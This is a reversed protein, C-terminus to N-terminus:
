SVRRKAEEMISQLRATTGGSKAKTHSRGLTYSSGCVASLIAGIIQTYPNNPMHAMAVGSVMGITSIWFESTKWGPKDM